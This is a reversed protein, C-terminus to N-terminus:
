ATSTVGPLPSTTCYRGDAPAPAAIAACSAPVVGTYTRAVRDPPVNVAEVDLSPSVHVGTGPELTVSLTLPAMCAPRAMVECLVCAAPVTVNVPTATPAPAGGPPQGPPHVHASTPLAIGAPECVTLPVVRVTRPPPPSMQPVLSWNWRAVSGTAPSAVTVARTVACPLVFAHAFAPTM